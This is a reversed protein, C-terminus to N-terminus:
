VKHDIPYITGKPKYLKLSTKYSLYLPHKPTGDLNKGFCYLNVDKLLYSIKSLRDLYKGHTGCCLIIIKANQHHTLNKIILDNEERNPERDIKMVYPDTSIMSFINLMYMATEHMNKTWKMCRTITPDNIEENAVSPNLGLFVCYPNNEQYNDLQRWLTYRHKRDDSFITRDQRNLM